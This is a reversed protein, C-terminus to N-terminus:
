PSPHTDRQIGSPAANGNSHFLVHPGLGVIFGLTQTNAHNPWSYPRSLLEGGPSYTCVAYSEWTGSTGQPEALYVNGQADVGRVNSNTSCPLALEHATPSLSTTQAVPMATQWLKQNYYNNGSTFIFLRDNNADHLLAYLSPNIPFDPGLGYTKPSAGAADFVQLNAETNDQNPAISLYQVNDLPKKSSWGAIPAIALNWAQIFNLPLDVAQL